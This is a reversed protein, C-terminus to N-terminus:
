YRHASRRVTGYSSNVESGELEFKKDLNWCYTMDVGALKM